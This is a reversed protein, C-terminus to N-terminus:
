KRTRGDTVTSNVVRERERERERVVEHLGGEWVCEVGRQTRNHQTGSKYQAPIRQPTTRISMNIGHHTTNLMYKTGHHKASHQTIDQKRSVPIIFQTILHVKRTIIQATSHQTIECCLAIIHQPTFYHITRHKAIM